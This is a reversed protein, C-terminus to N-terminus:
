AKSTHGDNSVMLRGSTAGYNAFHVRPLEGDWVIDVARFDIPSQRKGTRCTGNWTNPGDVETYGIHDSTIEPVLFIFM